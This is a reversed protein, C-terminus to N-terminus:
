HCTLICSTHHSKRIKLEQCCQRFCNLQNTAEIAATPCRQHQHQHKHQGSVNPCTKAICRGSSVKSLHFSSLYVGLKRIQKRQREIAKSSLYVSWNLVDQLKHIRRRVCTSHTKAHRYQVQMRCRLVACTWVQGVTKWLCIHCYSVPRHPDARSQKAQEVDSPFRARGGNLCLTYSCWAWLTCRVFSNGYKARWLHCHVHLQVRWMQVSSTCVDCRCVYSLIVYPLIPLPCIQLRSMACNHISRGSCTTLLYSAPVYYQIDMRSHQRGCTVFHLWAECGYHREYLM